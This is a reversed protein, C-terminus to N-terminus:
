TRPQLADESAIIPSDVGLKAYFEKLFNLMSLYSWRACDYGLIQVFPIHWYGDDSYVTHEAFGLSKLSKIKKQREVESTSKSKYHTIRNRIFVVLEAHQYVKSGKDIPDKDLLLLISNFRELISQKEIVDAVANLIQKARIDVGNSGLNHGPGKNIINWCEAELSAVSQMISATTNALCLQHDQNDTKPNEEISRASNAFHIAGTFYVEVFNYSSELNATLKSM